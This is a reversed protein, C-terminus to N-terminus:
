VALNDSRNITLVVRPKEANSMIAKAVTEFHPRLVEPQSQIYMDTVACGDPTHNLMRTVLDKPVGAAFAHTSFTRRMTHPNCAFGCIVQIREYGRRSPPYHEKESDPRPFVWESTANLARRKLIRLAYTSLPIKHDTHNKTDKFTATASELDVFEWRLRAVESRRGGTLLLMLFYDRDIPEFNEEIAKFWTTLEKNNLFTDRPKIRNWKKYVTMALCPNDLTRAYEAMGPQYIYYNKAFKFLMSVMSIVANAQCKGSGYSSKISSLEAHKDIVQQHNIEKLDIDCWEPLCRTLLREYAELTFDKVRGIRIDRYAEFANMLTPM